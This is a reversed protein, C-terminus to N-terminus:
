KHAGSSLEAHFVVAAPREGRLLVERLRREVTRTDGEGDMYLELEFRPQGDDSRYVKTEAKLVGPLSCAFRRISPLAVKQGDIVLFDRLRGQFYLYGDEDVLFEDGTALVGPSVLPSAVGDFEGVKRRLATDSEVLLEGRGARDPNRVFARVGPLTRGVSTHRGPPERHAALTSVRPGAETLGYTLYLELDANEDLLRRVHLPDLADGGVTLVRLSAPLSLDQRALMRVLTPTLSSVTIDHSLLAAHYAATTFPPGSVVLRCGTGFASLAQAVLAYSYNMPLNVLITDDPRQGIAAAHRQGNRLLADISHVCGSFIGSTGSTLVVVEGPSYEDPASSPLLVVDLRDIRHKDSARLQKARLNPAVVAAAGLRDAVASIRAATASSAMPVPVGGLLSVAFFVSLLDRGNPMVILV